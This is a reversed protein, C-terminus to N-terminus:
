VNYEFTIKYVDRGNIFVTYYDELSERHINKNNHHVLFHYSNSIKHDRFFVWWDANNLITKCYYKDHEKTQDEVKKDYLKVSMIYGISKFYREFQLLIQKNFNSMPLKGLDGYKHLLMEMLINILVQFVMENDSADLKIDISNEKQEPKSLLQKAIEEPTGEIENVDFGNIESM